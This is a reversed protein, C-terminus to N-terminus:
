DDTAIPLLAGSSLSVGTALPLIAFMFLSIIMFNCVFKLFAVCHFVVIRCVIFYILFKVTATSDMEKTASTARAVTDEKTIAAHQMNVATTRLRPV